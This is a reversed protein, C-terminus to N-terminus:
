CSSMAGTHFNWVDVLYTSCIGFVASLGSANTSGNLQLKSCRMLDLSLSRRPFISSPSSPIMGMVMGRAIPRSCTTVHDCYAKPEGSFTVFLVSRM